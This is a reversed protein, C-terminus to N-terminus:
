SIIMLSGIWISITLNEDLLISGFFLGFVPVLLTSMTATVMDILSLVIYWGTFCFASTIIGTVLLQYISEATIHIPENWEVVMAAIAIGITGFFMQYATAQLKPVHQLRLRYYINAI